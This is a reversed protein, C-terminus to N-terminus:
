KFNRVKMHSIVTKSDKLGQVDSRAYQRVDMVISFVLPSLSYRQRESHPYFQWYLVMVYVVNKPLTNKIM